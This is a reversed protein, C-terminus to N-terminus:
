NVVEQKGSAGSGSGEAGDEEDAKRKVVERERQSQALARSQRKVGRHRSDHAHQGSVEGQGGGEGVCGTDDRARKTGMRAHQANICEDRESRTGGHKHEQPPRPDTKCRWRDWYAKGYTFLIEEGRHIVCGRKVRITGGDCLRAKDYYGRPARYAANAYM